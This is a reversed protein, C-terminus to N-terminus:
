LPITASLFGHTLLIQFTKNRMQTLKSCFVHSPHERRPLRGRCRHPYLACASAPTVGRSTAILSAFLGSRVTRADGRVGARLSAHRLVVAGNARSKTRLRACMSHDPLGCYILAGNTYNSISYPLWYRSSEMRKEDAGMRDFFFCLIVNTNEQQSKKGPPLSYM